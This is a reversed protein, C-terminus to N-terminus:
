KWTHFTDFEQLLQKQRIPVTGTVLQSFCSWCLGWLSMSCAKSFFSCARSQMYSRLADILQSYKNYFSRAVISTDSPIDNTGLPQLRFDEPNCLNCSIALVLCTFAMRSLLMIGDQQSTSTTDEHIAHKRGDYRRAHMLVHRSKRRSM